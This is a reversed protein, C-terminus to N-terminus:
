SGLGPAAKSRAAPGWPGHGGRDAVHDPPPELSGDSGEYSVLPAAGPADRAAKGEPRRSEAREGDLHPTVCLGETEPSVGGGNSDPTDPVHAQLAPPAAACGGM